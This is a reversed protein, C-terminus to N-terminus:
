AARAEAIAVKLGKKDLVSGFTTGGIVFSPTGVFQVLTHRRISPSPKTAIATSCDPYARTNPETLHV